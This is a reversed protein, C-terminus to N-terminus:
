LAGGSSPHAFSHRLTRCGVKKTIVAQAAADKVSKQVLTEDCRYAEWFRYREKSNHVGMINVM